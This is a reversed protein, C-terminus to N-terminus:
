APEEDDDGGDGFLDDDEEDLGNEEVTDRPTGEEESDIPGVHGTIEQEDDSLNSPLSPGNLSAELAVSSAM